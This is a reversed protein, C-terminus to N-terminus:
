RSLSMKRGKGTSKKDQFKRSSIEHCPPLTMRDGAQSLYLPPMFEKHTSQFFIEQDGDGSLGTLLPHVGM